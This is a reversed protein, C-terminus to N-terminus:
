DCEKLKRRILEIEANSTTLELAKAFYKKAETKIGSRLYIEGLTTNYYCNEALGKMKLLEKIAEKYGEVEGL